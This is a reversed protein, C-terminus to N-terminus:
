HGFHFHYSFIAKIVAYSLSPFHIYNTTDTSVKQFTENLKLSYKSGENCISKQKHHGNTTVNINYLMDDDDDDDM